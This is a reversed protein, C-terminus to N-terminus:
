NKWTFGKYTKDTNIIKKIYTMSYGDKSTMYLSHYKKHFKGDKYLFICINKNNPIVYPFYDDKYRFYYGGVSNYNKQGKCCKSVHGRQLGTIRQVDHSSLFENVLSDDKISYQCIIRRLPNNMKLKEITEKKHKRGIWNFGDGGKTANTLKYGWTKFQSIWYVELDDINNEHGIDLVEMIPKLNNNKLYKLWKTKPQWTDKLNCPSMHRQLRDKMNKTKGIYRIENSTPDSLTYIYLEM